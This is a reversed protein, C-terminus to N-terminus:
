IDLIRNHALGDLHSYNKWAGKKFPAIRFDINKLSNGSEVHLIDGESSGAVLSSHSVFPGPADKTTRRYYIHRGLAQCRVQYRGPKLNVFRYKGSEDTLTTAVPHNLSDNGHIIMAEVVISVHPTTDDLMLVTGEISVAEKLILHIHRRESEQLQLDSLRTGLNGHTASLDFLGRVPFAELRYNGSDDSQTEAVRKGNQELSVNVNSLPAGAADTVQGSLVARNPPLMEVRIAFVRRGILKLLLLNDGSKLNVDFVYKDLRFVHRDNDQFVQRGNVWVAM